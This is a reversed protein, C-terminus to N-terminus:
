RGAAARDLLFARIFADLEGDLVGQLDASKLGTRHDVVLAQPEFVYSRIQRGWAIDTKGADLKEKEARRRELEREYLAARLMKMAMEKNQTQSREKQCTVTIGTPVHVIRVATETKNRHQGGNGSGRFTDIRLDEDNIVININNDVLPYVFVSAFSTHRRGRSDFPSIRALRHVGKEAKLYGYANRGRIELTASRIGAEQGPQLDLASVSFGHRDAWRSYMRLLMRAWDQAETGGAGAQITLMADRGDDADSLMNQIELDAVRKGVEGVWEQWEADNELDLERAFERLVEVERAVSEWAEVRNRSAKLQEIIERAKRPDDWINPESLRRECEEM